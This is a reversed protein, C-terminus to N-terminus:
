PYNLLHEFRSFSYGNDSKEYTAKLSDWIEKSSTKGEFCKAVEPTCKFQLIGQARTDKRQWEKLEKPDTPSQETGSVVGWGDTMMLYGKMLRAWEKYGEQGRLNTLSKELGGESMAFLYGYDTPEPEDDLLAPLILPATAPSPQTSPLPTTYPTPTNSFPLPFAAQAFTPSPPPLEPLPELPTPEPLPEPTPEPSPAPSLLHEVVQEDDSVPSPPHDVQEAPDEQVSPQDPTFPRCYQGQVPEVFKPRRSVNDPTEVVNLRHPCPQLDCDFFATDEASWCVDRQDETDYRHYLQSCDWADSSSTDSAM